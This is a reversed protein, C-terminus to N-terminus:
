VNHSFGFCITGFAPTDTKDFGFDAAFTFPGSFNQNVRVLMAMSVALMIMRMRVISFVLYVRIQRVIVPM